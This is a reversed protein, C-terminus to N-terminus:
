KKLSDSFNTRDCSCWQKGERSMMCYSREKYRTHQTITNIELRAKTKLVIVEFEADPTTYLSMLYKRTSGSHSQKAHRIKKLQWFSCRFGDKVYEVYRAALNNIRAVALKAMKIVLKGVPIDEYNDCSCIDQSIGADSCGRDWPVPNFLSVCGHCGAPTSKVGLVDMITMHVDFHSVLKHKNNALSDGVKRMKKYWDPLWIYLFPLSNEVFGMRTSAYEGMAYGHDALFVIMTRNLAGSSELTDLYSMFKKDLVQPGNLDDHGPNLWFLSFTPHKVFLSAFDAAFDLVYDSEGLPGLCYPMDSQSKIMKYTVNIHPALYYDTPQKSFVNNTFYVKGNKFHKFLYKFTGVGSGCGDEGYATIYNQESFKKWIYPCDDIYNKKNPWCFEKLEDGLHGTLIPGVLNHFTNFQIKHYGPFTYWGKNELYHVTEPMARLLNLRSVADLGIIMVSLKDRRNHQDLQEIKRRVDDKIPVLFHHMKYVKTAGDACTVSVLDAEATLTVNTEFARCEEVRFALKLWKAVMISFM